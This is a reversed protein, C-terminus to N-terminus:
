GRARTGCHVRSVSNERHCMMLWDFAERGLGRREAFWCVFGFEVEEDVDAAGVEKGGKEADDKEKEERNTAVVVVVVDSSVVVLIVVVDVDLM